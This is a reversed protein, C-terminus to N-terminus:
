SCKIRKAEPECNQSEINATNIDQAMNVEDKTELVLSPWLQFSLCVMEKNPAVNRVVRCKYNAPLSHKLYTEVRPKLEAEADTKPTFAYCLVEPLTQELLKTSRLSDPLDHLLSKFESLFEVAIAPLNMLVFSKCADQYLANENNLKAYEKIREVLDEKFVTKIFDRGDMNFTKVLSLDVKNLKLNKNLYEFSHPNLDNTFVRCRKRKALPVSFPGIGAFVDYVVSHHPIYETVRQHETSLRSNWYVKSFDLEFTCQHEKTRTVYNDEGALLEMQFNRYTNDIANLKNVVTKITSIKDILVEGIITKYPLSETRLNLHAIHGVQSYSTVNEADSPLVAKIIDSVSWNDYHLVVEYLTPSDLNLGYNQLIEKQEQALKDSGIKGPDLLILHHTERHPDNNGLEAIPKIGKMKFLCSKWAKQAASIESKPVKIGPIKVITSFAKRDLTKMGQVEPPPTVNSSSITNMKNKNLLNRFKSYFSDDVKLIGNEHRILFHLNKVNHSWLRLVSNFVDFKM